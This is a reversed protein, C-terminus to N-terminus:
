GLPKGKKSRIPLSVRKQSNSKSTALRARRARRLLNEGESPLNEGMSPRSEGELLRSREPLSLSPGARPCGAGEPLLNEGVLRLNEGKRPVM